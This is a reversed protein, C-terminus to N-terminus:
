IKCRSALAITATLTWTPHWGSIGCGRVRPKPKSSRWSRPYKGAIPDWGKAHIHTHAHTHQFIITDWQLQIYYVM